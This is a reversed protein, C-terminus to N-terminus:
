DIKPTFMASRGASFVFRVARRMVFLSLTSVCLVLISTRIIGATSMSLGIGTWLMVYAALCMPCKPLLALLTGPLVWQAAGFIRRPLTARSQCCSASM